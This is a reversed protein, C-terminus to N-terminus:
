PDRTSCSESHHAGGLVTSLAVRYTSNFDSPLASSNDLHAWLQKGCYIPALTITFLWWWLMIRHCLHNARVPSGMWNLTSPGSPLGIEVSSIALSWCGPMVSTFRGDPIHRLPHDGQVPVSCGVEPKWM